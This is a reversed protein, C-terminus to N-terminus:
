SVCARSKGVNKEKKEKSVKKEYIEVFSIIFISLIIHSFIYSKSSKLLNRLEQFGCVYAYLCLM